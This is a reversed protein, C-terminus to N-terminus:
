CDVEQNKHSTNDPAPSNRGTARADYRSSNSQSLARRTARGDDSSANSSSVADRARPSSIERRARRPPMAMVLLVDALCRQTQSATRPSIVSAWTPYSLTRPLRSPLADHINPASVPFELRPNSQRRVIQAVPIHRTIMDQTQSKQYM